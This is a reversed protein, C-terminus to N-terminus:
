YNTLGKSLLLSLIALLTWTLYYMMDAIVEISWISVVSHRPRPYCSMAKMDAASCM